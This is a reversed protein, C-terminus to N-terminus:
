RPRCRDRRDESADIRPSRTASVSSSAAARGLLLRAAPVPQRGRAGRRPVGEVARAARVPRGAGRRPAALAGEYGEARLTEACRAGALGAGVVLVSRLATM